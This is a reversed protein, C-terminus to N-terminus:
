FKFIVGSYVGFFYPQFDTTGTQFTNIQYKFTPELNFILRESIDYDFGLAFNTSFSVHNINNAEGISNSINATQIELNNNNLVLTSAGGIININIAKDLLKYELEMPIEIFGLQQQLEASERPLRGLNVGTSSNELQQFTLVSSEFNDNLSANSISAFGTGPVLFIDSTSYNLNVRNVGSRVKIKDSIQYAVNVGYSMNVEGQSPNQEFNEDLANGGGIGGYFTPSVQPKVFWSRDQKASIKHDKESYISQAVEVLSQKQPSSKKSNLKKASILDTSVLANSSSIISKSILFSEPGLISKNLAPLSPSGTNKSKTSNEQGSASVSQLNNVSALNIQRRNQDNGGNQNSNQANIPDKIENVESVIEVPTTNDQSLPKVIEPSLQVDDVPQNNQQPTDVISNTPNSMQSNILWQSGVLMLVAIAAAAAGLKQWLPIVPKRSKKILRKEINDWSNQPTDVEFDKFSEQFLRDIKQDDSM